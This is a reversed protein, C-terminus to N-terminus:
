VLPWRQPDLSEDSAVEDAALDDLSPPRHAETQALFEVIDRLRDLDSRM